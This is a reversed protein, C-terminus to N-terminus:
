HTASRSSSNRATKKTLCFVAYSTRMLSQLESTHEESRGKFVPDRKENRAARAEQRDETKYLASIAVLEERIGRRIQDGHVGDILQKAMAVHIPPRAAFKGAIELAGSDLDADEVGFDVMGGAGGQAPAICQGAVLM